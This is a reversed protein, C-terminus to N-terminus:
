RRGRVDHDGFCVALRGAERQLEEVVGGEEGLGAKIELVQENLGFEAAAPRALGQEQVERFDGILAAAAAHLPGDEVPVLGGLAEIALEAGHREFVPADHAQCAGCQGLIASGSRHLRSIHSRAQERSQQALDRALESGCDPGSFHVSARNCRLLAGRKLCITIQPQRLGM